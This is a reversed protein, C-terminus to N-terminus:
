TQTLRPQDASASLDTASCPLKIVFVAGKGPQSEVDITGELSTIIEYAVTLGMGTGMGAEKTTFFSEFIRKKIDEPIGPGNDSFSIKIFDDTYRTTIVLKLGERKTQFSNLIINLFVQCMLAPNCTFEPLPHYYKIIEADEPIEHTLVNLTRNIERNIDIIAEDGDDIHSFGKLDSVIKKVREAGDLSEKILEEADPLILDLKFDKWKHRSIERDEDTLKKTEFAAHYFVLMERFRSVYQDLTNLNSSIFGLPNNIEHAVGAALQGVSAMKEQQLLRTHVQKLEETREQVKKELSNVLERYKSESIELRRNTELLEEYSQNIVTTHIETTLMKKLNSNLIIKVADSLLEGLGELYIKKKRDGKMVIHGSIEGELYLTKKITLRGEEASDGSHCLIGGESDVVMVDSAGARVASKLLTMMDVEGIIERLNKEAGIIYETNDSGNQEEM